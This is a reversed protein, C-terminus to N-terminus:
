YIFKVKAVNTEDLKAWCPKSLVYREKNIFPMECNQICLTIPFIYWIMSICFAVEMKRRHQVVTLRYANDYLCDVM